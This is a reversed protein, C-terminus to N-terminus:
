YWGWGEDRTDLLAWVNSASEGAAEVTGTVVTLEPLVALLMLLLRLLASRPPAACRGSPAKETGTGRVAGMVAVAPAVVM